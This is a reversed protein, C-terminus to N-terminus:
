PKKFAGAKYQKAFEADSLKSHDATAAPVGIRRYGRGVLAQLASEDMQGEQEAIADRPLSGGISNMFDIMNKEKQKRVTPNAFDGPGMEIGRNIEERQMDGIRAGSMAHAVALRFPALAAQYTAYDPSQDMLLNGVGKSGPMTGLFPVHLGREALDRAASSGVSVNLKDSTDILDKYKKMMEGAQAVRAALPASLGGTATPKPSLGEIPTAPGSQGVRAFLPKGDPGIGGVVKDPETQLDAKRNAMHTAREIPAKGTEIDVAKKVEIPATGAATDIAQQTHIPALAAATDRAKLVELPNTLRMKEVAAPVEGMAKAGSLKGQLTPDIGAMSVTNLVRNREAEDRAKAQALVNRAKTQEDDAYGAYGKGATTALGSLVDLISM